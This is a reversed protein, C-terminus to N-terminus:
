AALLRDAPDVVGPDMDPWQDLEAYLAPLDNRVVLDLVDQFRDIVFYNQQFADTRYNTRLVRKLDFGFRKPIDSELSYHAEGFSSM